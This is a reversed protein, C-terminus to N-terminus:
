LRELVLTRKRAAVDWLYIRADSGVVALTKGDPHWALVDTTVRHPLDAVVKGTDLDRIEVSTGCSVALQRGLPHFAM